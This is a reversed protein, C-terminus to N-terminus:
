FNSFSSVKVRTRLIGNFLKRSPFLRIMFTDRSLNVHNHINAISPPIISKSFHADKHLHLSETTASRTRSCPQPFLALLTRHQVTILYPKHSISKPFHMENFHNSATLILPKCSHWQMSVSKTVLKSNYKTYTSPYPKPILFNGSSEGNCSSIEITNHEHDGAAYDASNEYEIVM